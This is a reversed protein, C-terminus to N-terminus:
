LISRVGPIRTLIQATLWSLAVTSVFVIAAKIGAPAQSSMLSKQSWTIFVYHVLYMVYASRSLSDMVRSQHIEIGRFFALFAFCSAVCSFVWLIAEVSRSDTVTMGHRLLLKPLVSLGAYAVACVMLWVKWERALKGSKALLGTSIGPVGILVGAGFWLAYLAIRSEQFAFPSIFLVTWKAFGFRSLLPLYAAASLALMALFTLASHPQLKCAFSATKSLWSHTPMLLAAVALDFLLLVWIFWPPGVPFGTRALHGYFPFFSSSHAGLTWSPYLALPMIGCVAVAFPVGLRLLRDKAFTLAGHRRVAPYVFLGSILFMLSMFFVDNFNEAYNLVVWRSSDVIPATSRFVNEKNFAAWTTYALMSHHAVVMLTLTTRLYDLSLDRVNKAPAAEVPVAQSGSLAQEGIPSLSQSFSVNSTMRSGM